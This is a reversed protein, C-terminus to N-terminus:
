GQGGSIVIFWDIGFLYWGVTAAILVLLYALWMGPTMRKQKEVMKRSRTETSGSSNSDISLDCSSFSSNGVVSMRPISIFLPHANVNREM